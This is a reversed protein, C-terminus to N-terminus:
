YGMRQKLYVICYSCKHQKGDGFRPFHTARFRKPASISQRRGPRKRANYTGILQKGLEVRFSKSDKYKAKADKNYKSLIYANSIAVDFLFWFFYKYSKRCKTRVHYYNRTQDNRDVGGMYKNYLSVSNPCDVEKREGTKLKRKVKEIKNPQANTSAMMVVKTDKWLTVVLEGCQRVQIDGRNKLSKIAESMDEPLWKRNSRITGCGYIGDALLDTLLPLSTFYNDFYVHHNKNALGKTLDKVVRAGLGEEVSGQKGLYVQFESVFGTIGDARVWVKFGRRIPKLPMYQKLSSRGKFAIMAEDISCEKNSNYSSLFNEAVMDLVKRVKGLKDYGDHGPLILSSNDAFHLYRAIERFRERTIKSAIPAYYYVEDKKWYDEIKPLRVIGMLIMFGFYAIMEECTIECWSAYKEELCQSAFLNSQEVIYEIINMTFFLQFIQLPSSPIPVQPGVPESFPKITITTGTKAWKYPSPSKGRRCYFVICITEVYM